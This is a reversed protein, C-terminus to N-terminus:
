CVVFVYACVPFVPNSKEVSHIFANISKQTGIQISVHSFYDNKNFFLCVFGTSIPTPQIYFQWGPCTSSSNDAKILTVWEKQTKNTQKKLGLLGYHIEVWQSVYSDTQHSNNWGILCLLFIQSKSINNCSKMVILIPSVNTWPM